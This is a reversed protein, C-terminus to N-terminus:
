GQDDDPSSAQQNAVAASIEFQLLCAMDTGLRDSAGHVLATIEGGKCNARCYCVMSTNGLFPRTPQGDGM